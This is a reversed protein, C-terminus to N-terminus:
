EDDDRQDLRRFSFREQRARRRWVLAVIGAVGACAVVGLSVPVSLALPGGAPVYRMVQGAREEGQADSARGAESPRTAPPSSVVSKLVTVQGVPIGAAGAVLAAVEGSEASYRADTLLLVSGSGVVEKRTGFLPDTEPLNLHVRAELVGGLAGLSEEISQAMAREYRFWQEERSPVIGSKAVGTPRSILVRNSELLSLAPVISDKGVSVAWRGDSQQVKTAGVDAAHLRSMVRNADAESLDHVIQEDCGAVLAAVALLGV